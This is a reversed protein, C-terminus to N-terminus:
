YKVNNYVNNIPNIPQILEGSLGKIDTLNNMDKEINSRWALEPVLETFQQHFQPIPGRNLETIRGKNNMNNYQERNQTLSSIAGKHTNCGLFEELYFPSGPFKIMLMFLAALTGIIFLLLFILLITQKIIM